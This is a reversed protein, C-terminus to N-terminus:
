NSYCQKTLPFMLDRYLQARLLATQQYDTKGNNFKSVIILKLNVVNM